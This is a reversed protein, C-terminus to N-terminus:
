EGVGAKLQSLKQYIREKGQSRPDKFGTGLFVSVLIVM